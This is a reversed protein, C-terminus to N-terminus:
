RGKIDVNNYYLLLNTYLIFSYYLNHNNNCYSQLNIGSLYINNRSFFDYLSNNSCPKPHFSHYHITAPPPSTQFYYINIM